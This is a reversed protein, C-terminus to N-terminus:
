DYLSGSGRPFRRTATLSWGGERWIYTHVALSREDAEYVLL